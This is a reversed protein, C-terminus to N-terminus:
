RFFHPVFTSMNNTIRNKSERIGIGAAEGDIVWSGIVPHMGNFDPVPALGQYVFGEQGYDGGTKETATNTRLTVNAGERSLLPKRVYEKMNKPSGIYAGCLNPHNPFLEWLVALLAKNSWMMKWIPEIWQVDKYTDLLHPGFEEHILWEWPYLKFISCMRHHDTDVFCRQAADWGVDRILIGKTCAGAQEATDRLYIATMSDEAERDDLHTFYLASGSSLYNKLEQWKAVLREHISNFQDKDRFREQLWYWQVVSAELLGTPTDANYELLKPPNKGDYALDMRGYIAPPEANWAWDILPAAEKPIHFEDYRKNDIINQGALLCLRQLENTAAELVDVEKASFEYYASENWYVGERTHHFILGLEEVKKEWNTRPTIASRRM